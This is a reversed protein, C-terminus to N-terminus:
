FYKHLVPKIGSACAKFGGLFTVALCARHGLWALLSAAGTAGVRLSAKAMLDIVSRGGSVVAQSSQCSRLKTRM